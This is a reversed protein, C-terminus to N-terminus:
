GRWAPDITTSPVVSTTVQDGGRLARQTMCPTLRVQVPGGPVLTCDPLAQPFLLAGGILVPAGGLPFQPNPVGPTQGGYCVADAPRTFPVAADVTWVVTKERNLPGTLVGTVPSSETLGLCDIQEATPLAASLVGANGERAPQAIASLTVAYDVLGDDAAADRTTASLAAASAGGPVPGRGRWTISLRCSTDTVTPEEEPCPVAVRADASQTVETALSSVGAELVFDNGTGNFDNAQKAATSWTWTGGASTTDVVMRVTATRGPALSLGRVRVVQGDTTATATSAAGSVSASVVEFGNGVPLYRPATLNVSGLRQNNSDTNRIAAEFVADPAAASSAPTMWVSYTKDGAHAAPATAALVAALVAAVAGLHRTM